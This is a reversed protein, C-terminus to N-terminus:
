IATCKVSKVVHSNLLEVEKGSEHLSSTSKYKLSSKELIQRMDFAVDVFLMVYKNGTTLMCAITKIFQQMQQM